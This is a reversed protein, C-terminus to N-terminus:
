AGVQASSTPGSTWSCLYSDSPRGQRADWVPVLPEFTLATLLDQRCEYPDKVEVFRWRGFGGHANVAPMWLDRATRVKETKDRRTAGSVEVVLTLPTDGEAVRARVLFDPLYSRQDGDL